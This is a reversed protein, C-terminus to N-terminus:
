DTQSYELAPTEYTVKTWIGGARGLIWVWFALWAASNLVLLSSAAYTLTSWRRADKQMGLLGLVYLGMQGWFAIRYLLGPLGASAVLMLVLLWPVLLRLFKHSLLQLWVPNRWPLLAAPCLSLLQFNGCLTRVKRRFEDRPCEPLRDYAVASGDHVVRRRQMAVQLPWYVDDLLTGRPIPRFLSRRM